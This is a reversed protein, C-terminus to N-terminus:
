PQEQTPTFEVDIADERARRIADAAASPAEQVREILGPGQAEWLQEAAKGPLTIMRATRKVLGDPINPDDAVAISVAGVLTAAGEPVGIQRAAWRSVMITTFGGILRTVPATNRM